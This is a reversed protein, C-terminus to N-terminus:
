SRNTHRDRWAPQADAHPLATAEFVGRAIARAMVIAALHCLEMFEGLGNLPRQGTSAAFVTDGDLPLHTPLLARAFGDHGGLSLRHAEAKTLVADTVIAGITTAPTNMGKLRMRHDIAAPMGLGGFEKDREFPAAWFHPGEGITASGLANVAVIAAITHGTSSVASASGLGGKVTATTAGTGAGVTGLEFAGKAANRCAEYGMERYPSHAAWDKDGGNLLDFLIAQPVIPVRTNGVEFGRGIARLHTQVGGAADLGFASGGSLVFADVKEVTMAPDLLATDRGGPAGGLITGSAIAPADFLITTVGSGLRLDTAHGVSVGDIDTILNLM